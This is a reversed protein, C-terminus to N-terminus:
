AKLRLNGVKTKVEIGFFAEEFFNQTANGYIDGLMDASVNTTIITPLGNEHRTRLVEHFFNMNWGSSTKHEKGLDDIVLVRINYSDDGAEGLVGYYIREDWQSYSNDIIRAKLALLKVYSTFYCPRILVNNQCDFSELGFTTIMEQLISSALTTKGMGPEGILLLGLGCQPKGYARIVKNSRVHTVWSKIHNMVDDDIDYCDKLTKGVSAAPIAAVKFWSKRRIKLSEVDYM